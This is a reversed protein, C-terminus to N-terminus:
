RLLCRSGSFLMLTPMLASGREGQPLPTAEGNHSIANKNLSKIWLVKTRPGCAAHPYCCVCCPRVFAEGFDDMGLLQLMPEFRPSSAVKVSGADTVIIPLNCFQELSLADWRLM